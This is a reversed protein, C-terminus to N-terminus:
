SQFNLQTGSPPAPLTIGNSAAYAMVAERGEAVTDAPIGLAELQADFDAKATDSSGSVGTQETSETQKAQLSTLDIDNEEAYKKIATEGEAITEEPIGLDELKSNVDYRSISQGDASTVSYISIITMISEKFLLNFTV